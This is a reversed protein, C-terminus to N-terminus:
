AEPAVIVTHIRKIIPKNIQEIYKNDSLVNRLM